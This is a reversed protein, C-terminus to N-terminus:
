YFCLIEYIGTAWKWDGDLYFKLGIWVYDNTWQLSYNLINMIINMTENDPITVLNGAIDKGWTQCKNSAKEWTKEKDVFLLCKDNYIHTFGKNLSKIKDPCQREQFM